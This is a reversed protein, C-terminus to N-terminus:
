RRDRLDAALTTGDAAVLRVDDVESIRLDITAGASCTAADSRCTAVVTRSAGASVVVDYPGRSPAQRVVAFLWSPAGDYLFV